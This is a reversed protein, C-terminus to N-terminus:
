AAGGLDNSNDRLVEVARELIGAALENDDTGDVEVYWRTKGHGDRTGTVRAVIDYEPDSPKRDKISIVKCKKSQSM